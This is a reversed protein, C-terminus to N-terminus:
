CTTFILFGKVLLILLVCQKLSSDAPSLCYLPVGLEGRLDKPSTSKPLYDLAPTGTVSNKLAHALVFYLPVAFKNTEIHNTM